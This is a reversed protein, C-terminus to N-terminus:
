PLRQTDTVRIFPFQPIIGICSPSIKTHSLTFFSLFFALLFHDCWRNAFAHDCSHVFLHLLFPASLCHRHSRCLFGSLSLPRPISTFSPSNRQRNMGSLLCISSHLALQLCLSSSSPIYTVHSSTNCLEHISM